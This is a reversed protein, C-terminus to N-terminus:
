NPSQDGNKKWIFFLVEELQNDMKYVFDEMKERNQWFGHSFKLKKSINEFHNKKNYNSALEVSKEFSFM